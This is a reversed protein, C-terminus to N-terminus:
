PNPHKKDLLDLEFSEMHKASIQRLELSSVLSDVASSLNRMFKNMEETFDAMQEENASGWEVSEAFLPAYTSSLLSKITVLPSDMIEGYLLSTDNAQSPDM